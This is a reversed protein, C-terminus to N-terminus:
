QALAQALHKLFPEVPANNFDLKVLMNKIATQEQKPALKIHEVVVGLTMYNAGSNGEVVFSQELDVGKEKLFRDIWM